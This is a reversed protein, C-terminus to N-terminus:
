KKEKGKTEDSADTTDNRGKLFRIIKEITAEQYEHSWRHCSAVYDFQDPEYISFLQLQHKITRNLCLTFIIKM